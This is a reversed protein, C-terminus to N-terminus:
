ILSIFKYLSQLVFTMTQLPLYQLLIIYYFIEIIFNFIHLSDIPILQMFKYILNIKGIMVITAIPITFLSALPNINRLIKNFRQLSTLTCSFYLITRSFYIIFTWRTFCSLFCCVIQHFIAYFWIWIWYVYVLLM